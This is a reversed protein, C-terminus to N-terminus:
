QPCLLGPLPSTISTSNPSCQLYLSTSSLYLSCTAKTFVETKLDAPSLFLLRGCIQNCVKGCTNSCTRIIM